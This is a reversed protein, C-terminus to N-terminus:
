LSELNKVVGVTKALIKVDLGLSHNNIYYLDYELKELNQDPTAMPKHVQAWGTIGPKVLHRYKYYDHKKTFEEVIEIREPRPGIISMDGKIVNFIQPLEDIKTKRLIQGVKTIRGDNVVTHNVYGDKSHVMTRIKYMTFPKGNLGVRKQRFIAPGKSTFLMAICGLVMLPLAVPLAIISIALDMIRKVIIHSAPIEKIIVTNSHPEAVAVLM